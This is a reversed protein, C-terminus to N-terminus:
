PDARSLHHEVRAGTISPLGRLDDTLRRAQNVSLGSVSLRHEYVGTTETLHFARLRAGAAQVLSLVTIPLTPQDGGSLTVQHVLIRGPFALALEDEADVALSANAMALGKQITTSSLATRTGNRQRPDAADGQFAAVKGPFAPQRQAPGL